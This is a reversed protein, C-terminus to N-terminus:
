PDQKHLDLDHSAKEALRRELVKAPKARGFRAANEAARAQDKARATQKRYRNLNVPPAM